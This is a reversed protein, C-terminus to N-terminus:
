GTRRRFAVFRLLIFGATLTVPISLIKALLPPAYFLALRFAAVGLLMVLTNTLFYRAFIGVRHELNFTFCADVFYRATVCFAYSAVYAVSSNLYHNLLSFIAIDLLTSAAGSAAYFLFGM